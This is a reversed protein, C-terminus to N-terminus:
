ENYGVVVISLQILELKLLSCQCKLQLENKERKRTSIIIFFASELGICCVYFILSM